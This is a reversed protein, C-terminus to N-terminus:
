NCSHPTECGLAEDTALSSTDCEPFPAGPAPGGLFLFNLIYVGASLSIEGESGADAAAMCAPGAGGLFLFNFVSVGDTLELRGNADFDGRLFPGTGGGGGGSVSLTYAGVEDNFVSSVQLSYSGAELDVSLRSNLTGADADDNFAIQDCDANLLGLTADFADSALDITGAFPEALEFTWIDTKQGEDATCDGDSLEGSEVGGPGISGVVCEECSGGGGGECILELALTGAAAAAYSSAGIYYDGATLNVTLSSNLGVGGDDNFAIQRCTTDFLHLYTDYDGSLNITVSGASGMQFSYVDLPTGRPSSCDLMQPFAAKVVDGCSTLQVECNGCLDVPEECTVDLNLTGAAAAAYSSAGIYYTGAPLDMSLRSNLGDGGDDDSAVDACNEDFLHLYTDYDGTLDITVNAPDTIELRYADFPTGRPSVCASQPFATNVNGGCDIDDIVCNESCLEDFTVEGCNTTLTYAGGQGVAFSSVGIFYTGATLNQEILSNLGPGGDDNEAIQVCNEDFLHLYTDYDGIIGVTVLDDEELVFSVIDLNNGRPSLCDPATPHTSEFSEDCDVRSVECDVCFDFTVEGCNVTLTYPGGQGAGFSSVGVFYTGATLNQEILSNLGPGGDDDEAIQACNEDFLHLYTDYGGVIGVTVLDDEELVFSVIDLDNGRPSVCDAATPHTGDFSENCDVLAVECEVCLDAPNTCDVRIDYAGTEAPNFTNAVIYYTGPDLWAQVCSTGLEGNPCDNNAVVQVCNQDVLILYPDFELSELEINVAKREDLTLEWLDINSGDGLPCDGATIEGAVTGDCAAEGVICHVCPDYVECSLTLQYAGTEGAARSAVGVSYDGPELVLRELCANTGDGDCDDNEAIQRCFQDSVFLVADFDSSTLTLDVVSAVDVTFSHIDYSSGDDLTCDEANLTGEVPTDCDVSGVECDVCARIDPCSLSLDYLGIEGAAFSSVGVVYDGATLDTILLSNFGQGGDDNSAVPDCNSDYLWLFTDFEASQLDVIVPGDQALTFPYLSVFSGAGALTCSEEDLTAQVESDCEIAATVCDACFDFGALCESSLTYTGIEGPGFSSVGVVYAGPELDMTLCASVIDGACSDSTALPECSEDYFTLFPAFLDSTLTFTYRGSDTVTFTHLDTFAENTALTCDGKALEGDVPAECDIEGADCDACFDFGLLCAVTLDYSGAEPAYSGAGVFYEGAPLDLVLRSNLGMGPADDNAAIVFCETGYLRLYPDAIPDGVAGPVLEITVRGPEPMSLSWLDLATGDGLDCDDPPLALDGTVTEDCSVEGAVCDDCTTIPGCTAEITYPGADQPAFGNAVLHYLGPGLNYTLCSGSLPDGGVCDDNTEIVFCDVDVLFFFTDFDATLTVTVAAGEQLDLTYIDFLTNDGLLCDGAALTGDIADGDCELAGVRCDDCPTGGAGGGEALPFTAGVLWDRRLDFKHTYTKNDMFGKLDPDRALRQRLAAGSISQPMARKPLKGTATATEDHVRRKHVDVAELSRPGRELMRRSEDRPSFYTSQKSGVGPARVIPSLSKTAEPAEDDGDGRAHSATVTSFALAILSL